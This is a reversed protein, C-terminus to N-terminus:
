LVAGGAVKIPPWGLERAAIAFSARIPPTEPAGMLGQVAVGPEPAILATAVALAGAIGCRLVDSRFPAIDAKLAASDPQAGSGRIWRGVTAEGFARADSLLEPSAHVAECDLAAVAGAALANRAPSGPQCAVQSVALGGLFLLALMAVPIKPSPAAPQQGRIFALVEDIDDRLADDWTAKTRPAVIHLVISAASLLGAGLAVWFTWDIGASPAPAGSDAHVMARLVLLTLALAGCFVAAHLLRFRPAYIPIM